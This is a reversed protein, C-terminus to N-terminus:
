YTQRFYYPNSATGRQSANFNNLASSVAMRKQQDLMELENRRALYDNYSLKGDAYAKDLERMQISYKTDLACGSLLFASLIIMLAFKM